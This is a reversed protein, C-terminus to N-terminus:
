VIKGVRKSVNSGKLVAQDFTTEIKAHAQEVITALEDITKFNPSPDKYSCSLADLINKNAGVM